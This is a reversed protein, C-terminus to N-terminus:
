QNVQMQQFVLECGCLKNIYFAAQNIHVLIKQVFNLKRSTSQNREGYDLEVLYILHETGVFVIIKHCWFGSPHSGIFQSYVSNM